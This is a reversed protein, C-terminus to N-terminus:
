PASMAQWSYNLIFMIILVYKLVEDSAYDSFGKWLPLLLYIGVLSYIYWLHAWTEGNLVRIFASMIIDVSLKYNALVLDELFAYFLGFTM